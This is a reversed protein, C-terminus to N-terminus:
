ENITQTQSENIQEATIDFDIYLRAGAYADVVDAQGPLRFSLCYNKEQVSGSYPPLYFGATHVYSTYAEADDSASVM